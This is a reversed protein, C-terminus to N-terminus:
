LEEGLREAVWPLLVGQCKVVDPDRSVVFKEDLPWGMQGNEFCQVAFEIFHWLDSAVLYQVTEEDKWPDVFCIPNRGEVAYEPMLVFYRGCGDDAIPIWRRSKWTPFIRWVYEINFQTDRTRIGYLGGIQLCGGNLFRVWAKVEDPLIFAAEAEFTDIMEETAPAGRVTSPRTRVGFLLRRISVPVSV